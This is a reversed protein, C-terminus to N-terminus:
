RAEDSHVETPTHAHARCTSCLTPVSGQRQTSRTSDLKQHRQKERCQVRKGEIPAPSEPQEGASDGSVGAHVGPARIKHSAKGCAVPRSCRCDIASGGGGRGELAARPARGRSDPQSKPNAEGGTEVRSWTFPSSLLVPQSQSPRLPFGRSEAETGKM